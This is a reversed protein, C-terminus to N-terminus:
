RLTGEPGTVPPPQYGRAVRDRAQRADNERCNTADSDRKVGRQALRPVRITLCRNAFEASSATTTLSVATSSITSLARAYAVWPPLNGFSTRRVVRATATPDARAPARAPPPARRPLRRTPCRERVSDPAQLPGAPPACRAARCIAGRGRTYAGCFHNDIILPASPGRSHTTSVRHSSVSSNFLPLEAGSAYVTQARSGLRARM